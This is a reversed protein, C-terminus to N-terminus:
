APEPERIFGIRPRLGGRGKSIVSSSRLSAVEDSTLRFSFDPPFRVDNRAVAQNLTKTAVGYLEALDRDLMVRHGRISLICREITRPALLVRRSPGSKQDKTMLLIRPGIDGGVMM